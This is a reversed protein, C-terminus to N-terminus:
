YLKVAYIKFALYIERGVEFGFKALTKFPVEAVIPIGIDVTVFHKGQHKDISLIKGKFNNLATTELQSSSLIVDDYNVVAAKFDGKRYPAHLILDNAETVKFYLSQENECYNQGRFINEENKSLCGENMRIIEDSVRYAFDLDHSSMIVSTNFDRTIKHLLKELKDISDADVGGTPEDLILVDPEIALARAIAVRQVEGGSLRSSRRYAFEELGVIELVKEVQEKIQPKPMKKLKLAYAVNDYVTGHLMFPSQHVYVTKQLLDSPKEVARGEFIISGVDSELLGSLLKLLTTKGCGNHGAFCYIRNPKLTVNICPLVEHNGYSFNLENIEYLLNKM